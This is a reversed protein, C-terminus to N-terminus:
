QKFDGIKKQSEYRNNFYYQMGSKYEMYLFENCCTCHILTETKHAILFKAKRRCLLCFVYGKFLFTPLLKSLKPKIILAYTDLTIPTEVKSPM